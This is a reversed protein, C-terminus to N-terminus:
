LAMAVAASETPPPAYLLMNPYYRHCDDRSFALADM